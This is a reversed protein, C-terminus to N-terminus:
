FHQHSVDVSVLNSSPSWRTDVGKKKWPNTTIMYCERGGRESRMWLGSAINPVNAIWTVFSIVTRQWSSYVTILWVYIYSSNIVLLVKVVGASSPLLFHLRSTNLQLWSPLHLGNAKMRQWSSPFHPCLPEYECYVCRSCTYALHFCSAITFSAERLKFFIMIM